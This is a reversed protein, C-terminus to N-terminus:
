LWYLFPDIDRWSLTGPFDPDWLAGEPWRRIWQNYDPYEHPLGFAAFMTWLAMLRETSCYHDIWPVSPEMQPGGHAQLARIGAELLVQHFTRLPRGAGCLLGLGAGRTLM